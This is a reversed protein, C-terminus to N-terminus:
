PASAARREAADVINRLLAATTVPGVGGPVLTIAGAVERASGDVDGVLRGNVVNTGVDIVAAGPKIMNATVFNAKGIAAVLIDASRCVDELNETKSHCITVTADAATLLMAAPRGVVASRGIVVARAGRLPRVPPQKLLEVIALATAPAFRPKGIALLGLNYPHCCDVDKNPDMAGIVRVEDITKPLPRQIIAGHASPEEVVRAIIAIAGSTDAGAGIPVIEVEVGIQQGGRRATQAYLLGPADGESVIAICKPVIGREKLSRSRSAVEERIAAAVARGDIITAPGAV